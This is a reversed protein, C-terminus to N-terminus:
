RTRGTLRSRIKRLTKKLRSPRKPRVAPGAAQASTQRRDSRLPNHFAEMEKRVAAFIAEGEPGGRTEWLKARDAIDYTAELEACVAAFAADGDLGDQAEWLKVRDVIDYVARLLATAVVYDSRSRSQALWYAIREQGFTELPTSADFFSVRDRESTYRNTKEIWQHADRHSLNHICVGGDHPVDYVESTIRGVEEHLTSVFEAAGRRFARVNYSPWYYAGDDHRGMIYERKPIRFVGAPHSGANERVWRIAEVSLCEDHDLYLIFDHSCADYAVFRTETPLPSWPVSIVKDAFGAAVAATGDTSSKDVVILEDVFRLSRLCTKLIEGSNYTIVFGSIKPSNVGM